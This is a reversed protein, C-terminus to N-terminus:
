FLDGDDDDDLLEKAFGKPEDKPLLIKRGDADGKLLEDRHEPAVDGGDLSMAAWDFPRAKPKDPIIKYRKYGKDSDALRRIALWDGIAPRVKALEGRAVTHFAWFAHLRGNDDRLTLVPVTDDYETSRTEIEVLEGVLVDGPKPRWSEAPEDDYEEARARLDQLHARM